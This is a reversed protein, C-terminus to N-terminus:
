MIIAQLTAARLKLQGGPSGGGGHNGGLPPQGNYRQECCLCSGSSAMPPTGAARRKTARREAARHESLTSSLAIRFFLKTSVVPPLHLRLCLLKAVRQEGDMATRGLGGRAARRLPENSAHPLLQEGAVWQEGESWLG